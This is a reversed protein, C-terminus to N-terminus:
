FCVCLIFKVVCSVCLIFKVVCCYSLFLERASSFTSKLIVGSGVARSSDSHTMYLCEPVSQTLYSPFNKLGVAPVTFLRTKYDCVCNEYHNFTVTNVTISELLIVNAPNRHM